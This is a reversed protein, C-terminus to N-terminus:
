EDGTSSTHTGNCGNVTCVQVERADWIKGLATTTTKQELHCLNKEIAVVELSDVKERM